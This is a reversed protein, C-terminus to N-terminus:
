VVSKRDRGTDLPAFARALTQEFHELADPGSSRVNFGAGEVRVPTFSEGTQGDAGEIALRTHTAGVDAGLIVSIPM